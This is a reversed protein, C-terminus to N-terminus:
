ANAGSPDPHVLRPRANRRRRPDGTLACGYDQYARKNEGRARDFREEAAALMARAQAFDQKASELESRAAPSSEQTHRAIAAKLFSRTLAFDRQAATLESKAAALETESHDIQNSRLAVVDMPGITASIAPHIPRVAPM